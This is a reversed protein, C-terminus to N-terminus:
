ELQNPYFEETELINAGLSKLRRAKEITDVRYVQYYANNKKLLSINEDTAQDSHITIFTNKYKNAANIENQLGNKSNYIFSMHAGPYMKSFAERERETNLAFFTREFLNNEKLIDVVKKANVPNTLDIKSGDVNLVLNTEKLLSAVQKFKPVRVNKNEYEPYGDTKLLLQDLETSTLDSVKGTGNTTADVTEDHMLYIEGDKNVRPDVEVADYNHVIAMKVAELSNPPAALTAGRHASILTDSTSLKVPINTTQIGCGALM